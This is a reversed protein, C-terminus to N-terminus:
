KFKGERGGKIKKKKEARKKMEFIWGEVYRGILEM